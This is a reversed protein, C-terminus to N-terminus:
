LITEIINIPTTPINKTKKAIIGFIVSVACIVIFSIGKGSTVFDGKFLM